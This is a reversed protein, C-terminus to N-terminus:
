NIQMPTCNAFPSTSDQKNENILCELDALQSKILTENSLLSFNDNSTSSGTRAHGRSHTQESCPLSDMLGFNSGPLEVSVSSLCLPPSNNNNVNASQHGKIPSMSLNSDTPSTQSSSSSPHQDSGSTPVGNAQAASSGNTSPSNLPSKFPFSTKRPKSHTKIHKSLHDSRMFRRDCLQCVFKKEGTHIRQHRQLEDSRTFRKGCFSWMCEFPKEGIHWRLHARLHSTKGYTKGCGPIHCIHTKKKGDMNKEGDICNPCSCAVRRVKRSAVKVPMHFSVPGTLHPTPAPTHSTDIALASHVHAGASHLAGGPPSTNIVSAARSHMIAAPTQPNARPPPVVMSAPCEHSMVM